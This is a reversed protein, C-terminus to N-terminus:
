VFLGWQGRSLGGARNRGSFPRTATGPRASPADLDIGIPARSPASCPIPSPAFNTIKAAAREASGAHHIDSLIAVTVDAQARSNGHADHNATAPGNNGSNKDLGDRVTKTLEAQAYPKSLFSAGTRTLMEQNVADPPHLRQYFVIKLRPQSALLKEVLDAGSVGDPM